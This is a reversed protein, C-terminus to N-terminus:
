PLIIVANLNIDKIASGAHWSLHPLNEQVESRRNKGAM